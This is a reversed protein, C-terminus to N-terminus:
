RKKGKGNSKKGYSGADGYYAQYAYGYIRSSLQESDNLVLGIIKEKPLLALGQKVAQRPTMDHRVVLLIGEVLKALVSPENTLLTPTVDLLTMCGDQRENAERIFDAMATSSILEIPNKKQGGGPILKLRPIDTVRVIQEL